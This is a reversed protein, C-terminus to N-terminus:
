PLPPADDRDYLAIGFVSVTAGSSTLGVHGPAFVVKDAIAQLAMGGPMGNFLTVQCRVNSVAQVAPEITARMRFLSYVAVPVTLVTATGLVTVHTIGSDGALECGIDGASAVDNTRLWLQFTASTSGPSPMVTGYVDMTTVTPAEVTETAMLTTSTFDRSM